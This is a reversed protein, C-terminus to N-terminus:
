SGAQKTAGGYLLATIFLLWGAVKMFIGFKKYKHENDREDHHDIVISIMVMCACLIAMYLLFSSENHLHLDPGRKIPIILDNVYIGYTGYLFLGASALINFRRENEPIFNPIYKKLIKKGSSSFKSYAILCKPCQREPNQDQSTRIHQCKPCQM